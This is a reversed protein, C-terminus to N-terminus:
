QARDFSFSLGLLDEHEDPQETLTGEEEEKEGRTAATRRHAKRQLAQQRHSAIREKQTSSSVRQGGLASVPLMPLAAPRRTQVSVAGVLNRPVRAAYATSDV